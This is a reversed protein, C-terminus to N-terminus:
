QFQTLWYKRGATCFWYFDVSILLAKNLSIPKQVQEWRFFFLGVLMTGGENKSFVAIAFVGTAFVSGAICSLSLLSVAAAFSFVCIIVSVGEFGASFTSIGLNCILLLFPEARDKFLM